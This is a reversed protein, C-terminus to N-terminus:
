VYPTTPLTLHTYSVAMTSGGMDKAVRGLFANPGEEREVLVPLCGIMRFYGVVFEKGCSRCEVVLSLKFHDPMFGGKLVDLGFSERTLWQEFDCTPCVFLETSDVSM